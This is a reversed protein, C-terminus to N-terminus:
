GRLFAVSRGFALGAADAVFEPRDAEAFWHKTGPYSFADLGLAIKLAAMDDDSEFDDSEALHAMVPAHAGELPYTAYYVVARALREENRAVAKLLQFGGFSFGVGGLPAGSVAPHARLEDLAANLKDQASQWHRGIQQEAEEISTTTEGDFLDPLGVVFGERALAAGYNRITQNLGWWAHAVIVGRGNGSPPVLIDM